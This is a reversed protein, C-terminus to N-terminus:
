LGYQKAFFTATMAWAVLLVFRRMWKPDIKKSLSGGFYGGGAAGVAMVLAPGWVVKGAVVFAVIAVGNTATALVTKVGNMAHINSMGMLALVALMLIGMGGGFYGGYTAIAFQVVFSKVSPGVAAVDMGEGPLHAALRRLHASLIGGLNFFLTAVLLLWPVLKVFAADTTRLLLIAGVAGGLLSASGLVVLTRRTEALERRFAFAGAVGAPWVAVTNTANAVIAPVGVFLLAPFTLFSGGGAVTNLAGALIATGFLFLGHAFTM